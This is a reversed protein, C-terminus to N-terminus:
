IKERNFSDLLKFYEEKDIVKDSESLGVQEAFKLFAEPKYGQKKLSAITPLKPDDWGKFKKKEIGERMKTSSLEMDKFHIKGLFGTWPFKKNLVDYIMKQRKANDRHDKGRIVHTMKMEIDDVSVALNMLPWIRYKNKQLPHKTENIRMLPFDRMAPNKDKMDSKFRLVAEGEGFGKKMKKWRELNEKINLKRCPCDKKDKVFERFEDGSCTCVYAAKKKILNEAYKYYLNMRESQIVVKAKGGSLWKSEEELMKYAPKYINEPNTDEIRVYFKGGYKKVYLLNLCFILAHGVHFPGSASPAIRMVVGKKANPLEQLGERVKRKHVEKELKEFEKKQEEVSLSNVERIIESIKKVYKSVENKKLGENFLSSIVSGQMAKGNYSLANKLAYARIKKESIM